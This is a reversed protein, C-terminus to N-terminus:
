AQSCYCSSLWLSDTRRDSVMFDTVFAPPTDVTVVPGEQATPIAILETPGAIWLYGSVSTAFPLWEPDDMWTPVDVFGITGADDRVGDALPTLSQATTDLLWLREPTYRDPGEVIYGEDPGLRITRHRQTSPEYWVLEDDGVLWVGHEYPIAGYVGQAFDTTQWYEVEHPPLPDLRSLDGLAGLFWIGGPGATMVVKSRSEEPRLVGNPIKRRATVQGSAADIGEFIYPGWVGVAYGLWVTGAAVATWRHVPVPFTSHLEGTRMDRREAEEAGIRVLAGGVNAISASYSSGAPGEISSTRFTSPDVRVLITETPASAARPERHTRTLLLGALVAFAVLAAVVIWRKRGGPEDVVQRRREPGQGNLPAPVPREDVEALAYLHWAGEVGKLDHMGADTLVVPSGHEIDSVTRTVLVQAPAAAAMVRAGIHVNMGAVHNGEVEVEGAHIGERVDLGAEQVAEAIAVAARIAPLPHAFTAFFGDGATDVEHGDHRKLERRVIARFRALLRRWGDDGLEEAITTSGVIDLFLVTAFRRTPAPM